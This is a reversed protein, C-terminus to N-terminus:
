KINLIEKSLNDSLVIQKNINNFDSNNLNINSSLEGKINIINGDISRYDFGNITINQANKLKVVPGVTIKIDINKFLINDANNVEIGEKSIIDINELTVNKLNMEPLGELEIAKKAGRCVINKISIDKFVPTGETVPPVIASLSVKDVAIQEDELIPSNGGYFMNFRIAEAPIDIMDINSIFINEVVGGRGRTTKFRLGIDTGMFTCNSVHINKMGGSMESGIVFGGHGHYVICNKVIVNEDPMGREIGDKNKGSKFCIGDDGVDFSCNYIIVNKCSELDLGDGNQAYWPNRIIVNSITVDESMLPHLCWAPSNQFGVGDILIKKCKVLSIMVPRLFDKIEEHEELTKLSDPVNMSSAKTGKLAKESPYWTTKQENLVGGSNIIKRWASETMKSKKVPRWSHGSGDFVGKGTIAINEVNRAFIPSTCRYTNLGEFSTEILPYLNFDGSFLVLAGQEAHLNINSKLEIPGTLWIGRPIIVKGGGHNYVDNIAKAFADTNLTQGDPIAGFDKINVSYDNFTPINVKPMDFEIDKYIDESNANYIGNENKCSFFLM